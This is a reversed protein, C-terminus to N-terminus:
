ILEELGEYLDTTNLHIGLGPLTIAQKRDTVAQIDWTGDSTRSFVEVLVKDQSVLMYERLSELQRYARFKEGRDLSETTDSLVEVVLLPNTIAKPEKKDREVPGCVVSVDPYCRRDARNIAIKVDSTLTKCPKGASKLANKLAAIVNGAIEGHEPSGGAMAHIYGDYYEYRTDSDNELQIYTELTHTNLAQAGMILYM